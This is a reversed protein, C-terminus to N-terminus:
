MFRNILIKAGEGGKRRPTFGRFGFVSDWVRVKAAKREKAGKRSVLGHKVGSM